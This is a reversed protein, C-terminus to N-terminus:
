VMNGIHGITERVDIYKDVFKDRQSRFTLRTKIGKHPNDEEEFEECISVDDMNVLVTKGSYYYTLYVFKM